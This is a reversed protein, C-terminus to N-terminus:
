SRRSPAAIIGRLGPPREVPLAALVARGLLMFANPQLPRALPPLRLGIEEAGPGPALSDDSSGKTDATAAPIVGRRSYILAQGPRGAPPAHLEGAHVPRHRQRARIPNLIWEAGDSPRRDLGSTKAASPPPFQGCPGPPSRPINAAADSFGAPPRAKAPTTVGTSPREGPRLIPPDMLISLRGRAPPGTSEAGESSRAALWVRHHPPRPKSRRSPCCRSWRECHFRAPSAQAEEDTGPGQARLEVPRAFRTAGARKRAPCALPPTFSSGHL